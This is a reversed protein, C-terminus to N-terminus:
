CPLPTTTRCDDDPLKPGYLSTLGVCGYRLQSIKLGQTGLSITNM